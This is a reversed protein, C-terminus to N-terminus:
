NFFSNLMDSRETLSTTLSKSNINQFYNKIYNLNQEKTNDKKGSRLSFPYKLYENFNKIKNKHFDILIRKKGLM